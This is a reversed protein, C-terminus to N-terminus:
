VSPIPDAISVLPVDGGLSPRLPAPNREVTPPVLIPGAAPGEYPRLPLSLPLLGPQLEHRSAVRRPMFPREFILSFIWTGILVAPLGVGLLYECIPWEGQISAPRTGYLIQLIPHHMLYLSYSFGGLAVLPRRSILNIIRGQQSTTLAYCLSSVAVAIGADGHALPDGHTAYFGVIWVGVFFMVWGLLPRIGIRLSPRYALHAAVMGAVFMPLYWPYLKPARPVNDIVAMALATTWGLTVWRGTKAFSLVLLPFLVYLQAELAISWLVGNIKYMWAVNYNHILFVHALVNEQTVPLFRALEWQNVTVTLCVVISFSLCAYYAPLIRLARRRYFTGIKGIKGDARSFLSLQLCFGSLVIFAAVAFHGFQFPRMASQLWLPAHDDHGLIRAPDALTCIHGLVVYLAAIGRLAELFPLRAVPLTALAPRRRM